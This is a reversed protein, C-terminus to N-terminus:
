GNGRTEGYTVLAEFMELEREYYDEKSSNGAVYPKLLCIVTDEHMKQMVSYSNYLPTDGLRVGYEGYASDPVYGLADGLSKLRGASVLSEYLWPDLFLISSEGTMIYKNYTDYQNSNYSNDVYLPKGDAGTEARKEEVQEKSLIGYANLSILVEGNGDFDRPAIAELVRSVNNQEEVSLTNRGAYVVVLDEKSQSCMQLTCVTVVLIAFAVGITVWKYHYWYNDLWKLFKGKPVSIGETYEKDQKKLEKM